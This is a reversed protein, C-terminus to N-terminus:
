PKARRMVFYGVNGLVIFALLLLHAWSQAVMGAIAAGPKGILTEYEAAGQLGGILGRIQRAQLYHFKDPAVVGTAGIVIDVGYRAGAFQIWEDGAQGAELGVLLDIQNYNHVGAMMPLSDLTIGRSDVAFFDRIERGLGVMQARYGPRYGLNVYDVGYVADYLPAIRGLGLEGFPTGMVWQGLVLVKLKKAFCHQLIGLYIPQLEPASSADYDVSIMVVSGEPLDDISRYAARVPESVRTPLVMKFLLPILVSLALALYILRRDIAAIREFFRM